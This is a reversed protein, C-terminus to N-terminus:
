FRKYVQQQLRRWVIHPTLAVHLVCDMVHEFCVVYIVEEVRYVFKWPWTAVIMHGTGIKLKRCLQLTQLWQFLLVLYRLISLAIFDLYPLLFHKLNLLCLQEIVSNRNMTLLVLPSFRQEKCADQLFTNMESLLNITRCLSEFYRSRSGCNASCLEGQTKM